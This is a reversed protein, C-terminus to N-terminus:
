RSLTPSVPDCRRKGDTQTLELIEQALRLAMDAPLADPDEILALLQLVHTRRVVNRDNSASNCLLCMKMREGTPPLFSRRRDARVEEKMEQM